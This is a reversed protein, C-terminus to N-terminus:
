WDSGNYGLELGCKCICHVTSYFSIKLDTCDCSYWHHLNSVTTTTPPTDNGFDWRLFKSNVSRATRFKVWVHVEFFRPFVTGPIANSGYYLYEGVTGNYLPCLVLSRPVAVPVDVPYKYPLSSHHIFTSSSELVVAPLLSFLRSPSPHVERVGILMLAFCSDHCASIKLRANLWPQM